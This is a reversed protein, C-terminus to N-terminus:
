SGSALLGVSGLIEQYFRGSSSHPTPQHNLNQSNLRHSQRSHGLRGVQLLSIGTYGVGLVAIAGLTYDKWGFGLGPPGHVQQAIQGGQGGGAASSAAVTSSLAGVGAGGRKVRDLANEIEENTLGKSELFAVKKALPASQVKADSLFRVASQIENERMKINKSDCKFGLKEQHLM